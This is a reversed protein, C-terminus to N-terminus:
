RSGLSVFASPRDSLDFNRSRRSWLMRDSKLLVARTGGTTVAALWTVSQGANIFQKRHVTARNINRESPQHFACRCASDTLRNLCCCIALCGRARPGVFAILGRPSAVSEFAHSLFFTQVCGNILLALLSLRERMDLYPELWYFCARRSSLVQLRGTRGPYRLFKKFCNQEHRRASCLSRDQFALVTIGLTSFKSM